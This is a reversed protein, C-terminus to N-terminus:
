RQRHVYYLTWGSSWESHPSSVRGLDFAFTKIPEGGEVPIIAIRNPPAFPDPSEPYLYSIFKGDPSVQPALAVKSSLEVANGGDISVRWLTPKGGNPFYLIGM